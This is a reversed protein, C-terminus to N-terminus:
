RGYWRERRRSAINFNDLCGCLYQALVFDPTNSGNELCHQNLLASLEDLFVKSIPEPDAPDHGVNARPDPNSVFEADVEAGSKPASPNPTNFARLADVLEQMMKLYDAEFTRPPNSRRFRRRFRSGELYELRKELDDMRDENM